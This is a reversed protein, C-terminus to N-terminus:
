MSLNLPKVQLRKIQCGSPSDSLQFVALARSIGETKEALNTAAAAAEEVLAANKQTIEDMLGVAQNVQVIGETQGTSTLAIEDMVTKVDEVASIVDSMNEGASLTLKAGEDINALSVDILTKVEKAATASRQALGRVESAVVAFGRGHEGARAAEVAANLALINTQFAIDDIMNIIDLVRRSSGSIGNMTEIMENVTRGSAGALSTAKSALENARVVSTSNQRVNNTLEEMTSATEELSSAQAETRSSLDMNGSAIERTAVRMEDFNERVDSIISHLNVNTQRLAKLLKGVENNSTTKITGTLDGGAMRRALSLAKGMDNLNARLSSWLLVAMVAVLACLWPIVRPTDLYLASCSLLLLLLMASFGVDVQRALSLGVTRKLRRLPSSQVVQGQRLLVKNPNGSKIEAYVTAAAAVESQTPKTRVSMYGVVVGARLVPTVNASVWYYDGNKCRNKVIGNWPAGSQITTWMDAFAEAPMDPHRIINQPAGILEEEKFGSIEIFYPNAFKIKGKLDTISVITKADVLQIETSTVPLNTRM